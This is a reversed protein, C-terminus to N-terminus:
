MRSSSGIDTKCAYDFCSREEELSPIWLRFELGQEPCGPIRDSIQLSGGYKETVHSVLHLGVGGYRRDKHFLDAKLEDHIGPGNDAITVEYGQDLKRLNVWICKKNSHNHIVANELVNALLTELFSDSQVIANEVNSSYDVEVGDFSSQIAKLSQEIATSLSRGALPAKDIKETAKVKSILSACRQVNNEIDNITEISSSDQVFLNLIELSMAIGQLRNRIDHSMLDLYLMAKDEARRLITVDRFSWIRSFSRDGQVIPVTYCEFLRGDLFKLDFIDAKMSHRLENFYSQFRLSDELQDTVYDLSNVDVGKTTLSRPIRCMEAFRTNSLLHTGADDVVLIGEATSELTARLLHLEPHISISPLIKGTEPLSETLAYTMGVLVGSVLLLLVEFPYDMVGSFENFSQTVLLSLSRVLLAICSASLFVGFPNPNDDKVFQAGLIVGTLQIAASLLPVVIMTM